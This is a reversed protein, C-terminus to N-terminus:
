ATAEQTAPTFPKECLHPCTEDAYRHGHGCRDPDDRLAALTDARERRQRGTAALELVRTRTTRRLLGAPNHISPDANAAAVADLATTHDIDYKDMVMTVVPNDVPPSTDAAERASTTHTQPQPLAPAVAGVGPATASVTLATAGGLAHGPVGKEGENPPATAGGLLVAPLRYDMARGRAAFVPRGKSDVARPVRPDLDHDKLRRCADRLGVKSVGVRDCLTQTVTKRTSQDIKDPIIEHTKEHTIDALESLVFRATPDVGQLKEHQLIQRRLESGM